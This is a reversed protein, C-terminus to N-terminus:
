YDVNFNLTVLEVDVTSVREPSFLAYDSEFQEYSTYGFFSDGDPYSSFDIELRDVGLQALGVFLLDLEGYEYKEAQLWTLNEFAEPDSMTAVVDLGVSGLSWDSQDDNAGSLYVTSGDVTSDSFQLNDVGIYFLAHLSAADLYVTSEDTSFSGGLAELDGFDVVANVNYVDFPDIIDESYDAGGRDLNLYTTGDADDLNFALTDVGIERLGVLASADLYVEGQSNETALSYNTADDYAGFGSDSALSLDSRDLVAVVISPDYETSSSTDSFGDGDLDFVLSDVGAILVDDDLLNRLAPADVFYVTGDEVSNTLGLGDFSFYSEGYAGIPLRDDGDILVLSGEDDTTGAVVLGDSDIFDPDSALGLTDGLIQAQAAAISRVSEAAAIQDLAAILDAAFGGGQAAVSLFEDSIDELLATINTADSLDFTSVAADLASALSEAAALFGDETGTASQLLTAVSVAAKQVALADASSASLAVPDSNLLNFDADLGLKELVLDVAEAASAGNDILINVLTTLPTIVASGAPALLTGTFLQGTSTDTGGVVKIAGTGTLGTFNGNADTTVSNGSGNVRTVTAGSLYGDIARGGDGSAGDSAGDSGLRAVAAAGIALAGVVVGSVGAGAAAAASASSASSGAGVEGAQALLMQSWSPADTATYGGASPYHIAGSDASALQTPEATSATAKQNEEKQASGAVEITSEGDLSDSEPGVGAAQLLEAELASLELDEVRGALGTLAESDPLPKQAANVSNIALGAAALMAIDASGSRRSGSKTKKKKQAAKLLDGSNRAM